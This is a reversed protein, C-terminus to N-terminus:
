RMGAGLCRRLGQQCVAHLAWGTCAITRGGVLAAARLVDLAAALQRDAVPAFGFREEFVAAEIEEERARQLAVNRDEEPTMVLEM